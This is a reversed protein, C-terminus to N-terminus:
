MPFECIKKTRAFFFRPKVGEARLLVRAKENIRYEIFTRDKKSQRWGHGSAKKWGKGEIGQFNVQTIEVPDIMRGTLAYCEGSAGPAVKSLVEAKFAEWSDFAKIGSNFRLIAQDYASDAVPQTVDGEDEQAVVTGFSALLLWGIIMCWMPWRM